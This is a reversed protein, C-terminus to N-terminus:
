ISQGYLVARTFRPLIRRNVFLLPLLMQLPTGPPRLTDGLADRWRTTFAGLAEQLDNDALAEGAVRAALLGSRVFPTLTHGTVGDAFGGASGVLLCRKAVHTEMELACTAPPYWVAGRARGLPLAAPLIGAGQLGAVMGSLEATRAGAAPSTSVLRLHLTRGVTFFMGMETRERCEVVHLVPPLKRAPRRAPLPVDLATASMPQQRTSRAHISLSALVADPCGNAILLLRARVPRSRGLRVHDDGLKIPPRARLSRVTVRAKRAAARLAATLNDWQVFFGARRRSRFEVRDDLAANHYCVRRFQEARAPRALAKPMGPLRFLDPAVWDALPCECAKGPSDLVIIKRGRGALACAAALGAPGAGLVAIDYPGRM